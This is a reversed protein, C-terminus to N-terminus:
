ICSLNIAGLLSSMQDCKILIHQGMAPFKVFFILSFDFAGCIGSRGGRPSLMSLHMLFVKGMCNFHCFSHFSHSTGHLSAHL